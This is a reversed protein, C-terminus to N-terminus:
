VHARGIEQLGDGNTDMWVYNGISGKPAIPAPKFGADITTNDKDQGVGYM